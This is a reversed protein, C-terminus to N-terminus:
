PTSRCRHSTRCAPGRGSRRNRRSRGPEPRRDGHRHGHRAGRLGHHGHGDRDDRHGRADSIWRNLMHFASEGNRSLTKKHINTNSHVPDVDSEKSHRHRKEGGNRRRRLPRGIVHVREDSGVAHAMGKGPSAGREADHLQTRIRIRNGVIHAPLILFLHILVARPIPIPIRRNHPEAVRMEASRSM